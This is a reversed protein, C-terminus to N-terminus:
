GKSRSIETQNVERPQYSAARAQAEARAKAEAEARAKAEAEARAKAEAEARAQAEARAKAEAEARAKAELRALEAEATAARALAGAAKAEADARAKADAEARSTALRSKAEADARASADAEARAAAEACVKELREVDDRLRSIEAIAAVLSAKGAAAQEEEGLWQFVALAQLKVALAAYAKAKADLQAVAESDAVQIGADIASRLRAVEKACRDQLTAPLDFEDRAAAARAAKASAAVRLQRAQEDLAAAHALRTAVSSRTREAASARALLAQDDLDRSLADSALAAAKIEKAGAFDGSQAAARAQSHAETAAERAATARTELDDAEASEVCAKPLAAAHAGARALEAEQELRDADPCGGKFSAAALARSLARVDEVTQGARADICREIDAFLPGYDAALRQLEVERQQQAAARARDAALSRLDDVSYFVETPCDPHFYYPRGHAPALAQTWGLQEAVVCDHEIAQELSARQKEVETAAIRAARAINARIRLAEQEAEGHQQQESLPAGRQVKEAARKRRLDRKLADIELSKALVDEQLAAVKARLQAEEDGADDDATLESHTTAASDHDSGHVAADVDPSADSREVIHVCTDHAIGCQALTHHDELEQGCFILRQLAAPLGGQREGILTKVDAVTARTADVALVFTTGTLSKVTIRQEDM